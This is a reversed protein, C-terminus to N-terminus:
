HLDVYDTSTSSNSNTNSNNSRDKVSDKNQLSSKEADRLLTNATPLGNGVRKNSLYGDKRVYKVGSSDKEARKIFDDIFKKNKEFDVIKKIRFGVIDGFSKKEAQIESMCKHYVNESLLIEKNSLESLRKALVLSNGLATFLLKGEKIENIIEGSNVGVGFEIPEKFKKNYDLLFNCIDEGAKSGDAENKFSRTALPSLIGIVYEGQEFVAGKKSYISNISKQIYEKAFPTIKNKIKLVIITAINRHGKTVMGPEAITPPVIPMIGVRKKLIVPESKKVEEKHEKKMVSHLELHRHGGRYEHPKAVSRKKIVKNLLLTIAVVAILIIFIWLIPSSLINSLDSARSESVDIAHGTLLVNSQNIGSQGDSASVQYEQNKGYLYLEKSEGIDLEIKKVFPTGNINVEIEKNYKVNGINKVFLTENRIEFFLLPKENVFFNKSLKKDTNSAEITYYASALDTPINYLVTEGSQVVEEHLSNGSSDKIVVFASDAINQNSQDLLTPKISVNEGPDFIQNNVALTVSKLIQPIRLKGNITGKNRREGLSSLDYANVVLSYEGAPANSPLRLGVSYAGNELKGYFKGLNSESPLEQSDTNINTIESLNESNNEMDSEETSNVQTENDSTENLNESTENTLDSIESESENTSTNSVGETEYNSNSETLFGNFPMLVEVEGNEPEGNLRTVNGSITILEDPKAFFTETDLIVNLADSIKFDPNTRTSEVGHEALFYCSGKLDNIWLENLPLALNEIVPGSFVQASNGDCNLSLKFPGSLIPDVSINIDIMDGLNYISNPSSLYISANLSTALYSIFIFSFVILLGKKNNM